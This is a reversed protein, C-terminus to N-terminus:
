YRHGEHRWALIESISIRKKKKKLEERMAFIAQIAERVRDQAAPAPVLHAVPKGHRTVVITEGREVADLYEPLRAKVDSSQIERM